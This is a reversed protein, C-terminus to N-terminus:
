DLLSTKGHDVHGMVTVVPPRPELDEEKDEETLVYDDGKLSELFESESGTNGNALWIEYASKGDFYDVDKQPTYGKLSELFEEETGKNGADLWIQYASKGDEGKLMDAMFLREPMKQELFLDM